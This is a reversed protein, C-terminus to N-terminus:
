GSDTVPCVSDRKNDALNNSVALKPLVSAIQGLHPAGPRSSDRTASIM